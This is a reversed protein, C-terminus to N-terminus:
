VLSSRPPRELGALVTWPSHVVLAPFHAETGVPEPVPVASSVLFAGGVCCAACNSCKMSGHNLPSSHDGTGTDKGAESDGIEAKHHSGHDHHHSNAKGDATKIHEAISSNAMQQHGPGCMVMSSAVAGKVPIALLLLCSTVIRATRHM